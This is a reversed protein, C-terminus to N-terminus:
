TYYDAKRMEFLDWNGFLFIVKLWCTSHLARSKNILPSIRVLHSPGRRSSPAWPRARPILATRFGFRQCSSSSFELANAWSNKRISDHDAILSIILTVEGYYIQVMYLIKRTSNLILIFFFFRIKNKIWAYPNFSTYMYLKLIHLIM